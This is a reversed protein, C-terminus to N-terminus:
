IVEIILEYFRPMARLSRCECTQCTYCIDQYQTFNYAACQDCGKYYEDDDCDDEVYRGCQDCCKCDYCEQCTKCPDCEKYFAGTTCFYESLDVHGAVVIWELNSRVKTQNEYLLGTGPAFVLNNSHICKECYYAWKNDGPIAADAFFQMNTSIRKKCCYCTEPPTKCYYEASSLPAPVKQSQCYQIALEKPCSISQNTM